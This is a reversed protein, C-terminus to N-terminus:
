VANNVKVYIINSKKNYKLLQKAYYKWIVLNYYMTYYWFLFFLQLAAPSLYAIMFHM